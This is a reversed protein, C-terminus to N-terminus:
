PLMEPVLHKASSLATKRSWASPQCLSEDLTLTSGGVGPRLTLESKSSLRSLWSFELSEMVEEDLPSDPLDRCFPSLEFCEGWSPEDSDDFPLFSSPVSTDSFFTWCPSPDLFLLRFSSLLDPSLFCWEYPHNSEELYLPVLNSTEQSCTNLPSLSWTRPRLAFTWHAVIQELYIAKVHFSDVRRVQAHAHFVWKRDILPGPLEWKRVTTSWHVIIRSGTKHSVIRAMPGSTNHSSKPPADNTAFFSLSEMVSLWVPAVTVLSPVLAWHVHHTFLILYVCYCVCFFDFPCKQDLKLM